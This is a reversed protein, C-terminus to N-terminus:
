PKVNLEVTVPGMRVAKGAGVTVVKLRSWRLPTVQFSLVPTGDVPDAPVPEPEVAAPEAAAPTLDHLLDAKLDDRLNSM